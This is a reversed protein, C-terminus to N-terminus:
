YLRYGIHVRESSIIDTMDAVQAIHQTVLDPFVELHLTVDCDTKKTVTFDVYTCPRSVLLMDTLLLPSTFRVALRLEENEFQYETATATVDIATQPLPECSASVGMFCYKEGDIRAYGLLKQRIGSWHTTDKGNLHDASSWISFFPDHLILPISAAKPIKM